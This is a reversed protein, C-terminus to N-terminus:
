GSEHRVTTESLMRVCRERYINYIMKMLDDCSHLNSDDYSVDGLLVTDAIISSPSGYKQIIMKRKAISWKLLTAGPATRSSLIRDLSGRANRKNPVGRGYRGNCGGHGHGLNVGALLWLLL